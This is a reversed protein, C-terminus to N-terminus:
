LMRLRCFREFKYWTNGKCNMMVENMPTEFYRGGAELCAEFRGFIDLYRNSCSLARKKFCPCNSKWYQGETKAFLM